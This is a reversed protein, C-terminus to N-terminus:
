RIVVRKEYFALSVPQFFTQTTNSLPTILIKALLYLYIPRLVSKGIGRKFNNAQWQKVSSVCRSTELPFVDLVQVVSSDLDSDTTAAHIRTDGRLTSSARKGCLWRSTLCRNATSKASSELKRKATSTSRIDATVRCTRVASRQILWVKGHCKKHSFRKKRVSIPSHM